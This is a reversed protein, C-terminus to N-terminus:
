QSFETVSVNGDQDVTGEWCFSNSGTYEVKVTYVPELVVANSVVVTWDGKTFQITNSGVWNKPTLNEVHWPTRITSPNVLESLEYNELIYEIAVERGFVSNKPAQLSDGLRSAFVIVSPIVLAVIFAIVLSKKTKLSKVEVV